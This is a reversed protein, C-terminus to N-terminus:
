KQQSLFATYTKLLGDEFSTHPQWGLAQIKSIDLIKRPVGEPKSPDFVLIGTYGVIEKILEALDRISIDEGSGVNIFEKKHYEELLFLLAEALDDVYLFERRANGTGWIVIEPANNKKAEYMRLFLSSIVHGRESDFYDGEGYLNCPMCFIFEKNYQSYIYECLKLGAIKAISYGENSSEFPGTLLYEEKMPQPALGPYICSSGLFLLKKVNSLHAQWIVNNQIVLNEYLFEAPFTSSAKIGGARAAALIVYDPKEEKFFLEVAKTDMLDLEERTPSIINTFNNARLVRITAAGVLGRGGAVFIRSDKDM